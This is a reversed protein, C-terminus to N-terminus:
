NLTNSRGMRKRKYWIFGIVALGFVSFILVNFTKLYHYLVKYNQGLSYFSFYAVTCWISCALADRLIFKGFSLKSMGTSMFLCNRVGFPIFRGILLTWMGYREYFGRTKEIREPSLLKRFLRFRPLFGGLLRGVWYAIWASFYTGFLVAFYLIWKHEPIVTAGLLAAALVVVDISVPMNLGAGLIGVFVFWHALHAYNIIFEVVNGM